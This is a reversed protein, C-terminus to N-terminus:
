IEISMIEYYLRSLGLTLVVFGAPFVGAFLDNGPVFWQFGSTTKARNLLVDKFVAAASEFAVTDAVFLSQLGDLWAILLGFIHKIRVRSYSNGNGLARKGARRNVMDRERSRVRGFKWFNDGSGKLILIAKVELFLNKRILELSEQMFFRPHRGHLIRPLRNPLNDFALRFLINLSLAAISRLCEPRNFSWECRKRGISRLHTHTKFGFDEPILYIQM